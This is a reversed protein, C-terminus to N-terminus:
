AMTRMAMGSTDAPSFIVSSESAQMKFFFKFRTMLVRLTNRTKRSNGSTLLTSVLFRKETVSDITCGILCEYVITKKKLVAIFSSRHEGCCQTIGVVLAQVFDSLGVRCYNSASLVTVDVVAEGPIVYCVADLLVVEAFWLGLWHEPGM